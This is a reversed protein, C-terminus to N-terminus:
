SLSKQYIRYTKHHQAGVKRILSNILGNDELTWGFEADTFRCEHAGRYIEDCLLYALGAYERTRFEKKIGLLMLRGSRPRHVKLRWLFRLWGFPLLHGNLPRIAWNFDPVALAVGAPVGNVEVVPVIRPDVVLKLESAMEDAEAETAPVFGWNEKWADNYLELIMDVEKRFDKMRARRITVDPRARLENVMRRPAGDPVREMGWKWAYVDKEKAYGGGELLAPYYPLTYPMLPLPPSGFGEIIVGVEGNVSFSLPGRLAEMGRERHWGEAAALLANAVDQDDVSEFFGFFGIRDSHFRNHERDIHASIRGVPTGDRLALFLQVESHLYFPNQQPSFKKKEMM